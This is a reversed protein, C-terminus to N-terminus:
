TVCSRLGKTLNKAQSSSREWSGNSLGKGSDTAFPASGKKIIPAMAPPYINQHAINLTQHLLNVDYLAGDSTTLCSDYALHFHQLKDSECQEKRKRLDRDRSFLGRRDVAM